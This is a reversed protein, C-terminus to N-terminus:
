CFVPPTSFKGEKISEVHGNIEFEFNTLVLTGDSQEDDLSNCKYRIAKNCAYHKGVESRIMVDGVVQCSKSFGNTLEIDVVMSETEYTRPTVRIILVIEGCDCNFNLEIMDGIQFLQVASLELPLYVEAPSDDEFDKDFEYYGVLNALAGFDSSSINRIDKTDVPSPLESMLNCKLYKEELVLRILIFTLVGVISVAVVARKIAGSCRM